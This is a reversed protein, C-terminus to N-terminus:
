SRRRSRGMLLAIGSLALVSPGPVEYTVFDQYNENRLGYLKSTDLQYSLQEQMEFFYGAAESSYGGFQTSGNSLSIEGIAKSLTEFNEHTLEWVMMQFAAAMANSDSSVVNAYFGDFLSAMLQVRESAFGNEGELSFSEYEVSKRTVDQALEICFADFSGGNFTLRGSFANYPTEERPSDWSLSEDFLYKVQEFSAMGSFELVSVDAHASVGCMIAVAVASASASPHCM